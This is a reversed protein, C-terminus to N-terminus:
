ECDSERMKIFAIVIAVLKNEHEVVFAPENGTEDWDVQVYNMGGRTEIYVCCANWLEILLDMCLSKDDCWNFTFDGIMGCYEGDNYVGLIDNSHGQEIVDYGMVEACKRNLEDNSLETLTM